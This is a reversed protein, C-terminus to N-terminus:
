AAGLQHHLPHQLIDGLRIVEVIDRQTVEVDRARDLPRAPWDVGFAVCRILTARLRRQAARSSPLQEARIIRRRRFRNARNYEHKPYM